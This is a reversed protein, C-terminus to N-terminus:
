EETLDEVSIEELMKNREDIPPAEKYYIRPIFASNPKIDPNDLIQDKNNIIIYDLNQNMLILDKDNLYDKVVLSAILRYFRRSDNQPIDQPSPLSDFGQNTILNNIDDIFEKREEKTTLSKFKDYIPTWTSIDGTLRWKNKFDETWTTKYGSSRGSKSIIAGGTESSQKIEIKRNSVELDAGKENILKAEKIMLALLLEGKGISLSGQTTVINNIWALDGAETKLNQNEKKRLNGLSISDILDKLSDIQDQKETKLVIYEIINDPIQKEILRKKILEISEDEKKDIVKSKAKILVQYIKEKEDDKLSSIIANIKDDISQEEQENFIRLENLIKDLIAKKKPDNMDVIGDPCRYSWELLINDIVNM